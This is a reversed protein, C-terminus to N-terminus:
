RVWGGSAGVELGEVGVVGVIAGGHRWELM